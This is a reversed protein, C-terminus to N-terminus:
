TVALREFKAMHDAALAANATDSQDHEYCRSAAFACLAANWKPNTYLETAQAAAVDEDEMDKPTMGTPREWDFLSVGFYRSEPRIERLREVGECLATLVFGSEFRYRKHHDGIIYRVRMEMEGLTM